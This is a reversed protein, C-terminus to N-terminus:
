WDRNNWLRFIVRAIGSWSMLFCIVGLIGVLIKLALWLKTWFYIICVLGVSMALSIISALCLAFTSPSYKAGPTKAEAENEKMGIRMYIEAREIANMSGMRRQVEAKLMNPDEIGQLGFVEKM